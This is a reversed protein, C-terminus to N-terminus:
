VCDDDDDDFDIVSIPQHQESAEIPLSKPISTPPKAKITPPSIVQPEQPLPRRDGGQREREDLKENLRNDRVNRLREAKSRTDPGLAELAATSAEIIETIAHQATLEAELSEQQAAAQNKSQQGKKSMVEEYSLVKEDDDDSKLECVVLSTDGVHLFITQLKHPHYSVTVPFRKKRAKSFWKRAHLEMSYYDRKLFEIGHATVVAEATPLLALLLNEKPHKKMTGMRNQLGWNWLQAPIAALGDAVMQNDMPYGSVVTNNHCRVCHIIIQTFEYLTLKADLRYDADIRAVYDKDVYGPAEGKIQTHILGFSREVIAKWDARYPPTNEVEINLWTALSSSHRSIFEARDGLITSALSSNPWEHPEIDIGFEKCYAVKDLTVNHLAMMAVTWSANELGVYIGVIMRSWVDIVVYLVPRGILKRRDARSLLYVDAITADVQYRYGPGISDITSNGLLPRMTKLYFDMGRKAIATNFEDTEKKLWYKFQGYTPIGDPDVIKVKGKEDKRVADPLYFLIIKLYTRYISVRKNRLYIEAIGVRFYQLMQIDVNSGVGLARTRPRGLKKSNSKVSNETRHHGCHHRRGRLASPVSGGQLYEVLWGRVTDVPRGVEEARAAIMKSRKSRLYIPLISLDAGEQKEASVLPAIVSWAEAERKEMAESLTYPLLSATEDEDVLTMAGSNFMASWENYSHLQIAAGRGSANISAVVNFHPYVQVILQPQEIDPHKVKLNPLLHLLGLEKNHSQFICM